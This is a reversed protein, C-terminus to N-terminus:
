NQRKQFNIFFTWFLNGLSNPLSKRFKQFKVWILKIGFFMLNLKKQVKLFTEFKACNLFFRLLQFNNIMYPSIFNKIKPLRLLNKFNKSFNWIQDFPYLNISPNLNKLFPLFLPTNTPTPLQAILLNLQNPTLQKPNQNM